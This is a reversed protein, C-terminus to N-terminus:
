RPRGVCSMYIVSEKEGDLGLIHNAEDDYIAAVHCCSLGVAACALALNEAIHGVDICVYRYAREGYKWRTREFLCSWLIDFAAEELMHQDLGSAAVRGGAAGKYLLELGHARINYHYIGKELGEVNNVCVYTEIPYLAGASPATRFEHGKEKRNIGTSAWLLYSIEEMSCPERSFARGSRRQMLCQDLTKKGLFVKELAIMEIPGYEKYTDPKSSWDLVREGMAGRRHKTERWFREGIDNSM